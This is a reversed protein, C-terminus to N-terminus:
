DNRGLQASASAIGIKRGDSLYPQALAGEPAPQVEPDFPINSGLEAAYALLQDPTKYHTIPRYTTIDM